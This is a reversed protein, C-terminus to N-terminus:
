ASDGSKLWLWWRQVSTITPVTGRWPDQALASHAAPEDEAEVLLLADGADVDYGLPGGILIRGRDVLADMFAAHAEFGDQARRPRAPDWAPGHSLRVLYHPM